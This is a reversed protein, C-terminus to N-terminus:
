QPSLPAASVAEAPVDQQVAENAARKLELYLVTFGVFLVTEVAAPVLADLSYGLLQLATSSILGKGWLQVLAQRGLWPGLISLAVTQVALLIFFPEYGDSMKISTKIAGWAHADEHDMLCPISLGARSLLGVWIALGAFLVAELVFLRNQKPALSSFAISQACLSVIAYGLIMVLYTILGVALIPGTRERASTYSDAISSQNKAVDNGLVASSVAAFAFATMLWPLGFEPLRVALTRFILIWFTRDMEGTPRFGMSLEHLLANGAVYTLVSFVSPPLATLFHRKWGSRYLSQTRQWVAKMGPKNM